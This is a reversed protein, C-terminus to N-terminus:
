DTKRLFRFLSARISWVSGRISGASWRKQVPLFPRKARFISNPSTTFLSSASKSRRQSSRLWSSRFYSGSTFRVTMSLLQRRSATASRTWRWKPATLVSRSTSPRHPCYALFSDAERRCVIGGSAEVSELLKEGIRKLVEDAYSRGYRENLLHFHNVDIVIADMEQDKHHQDFQVAYNYFYDRNYLGTLHDRETQQITEQDEHLEITRQARALIVGPNPYPKSIFDNAGLKLCEVESSHDSTAVIVPIGHTEPTEKMEKLVEIGNRKPMYLDLIVLALTDRNENILQLTEEGDAATLIDYEESLIMVLLERNIEEDEAILIQRRGNVTYFKRDNGVM